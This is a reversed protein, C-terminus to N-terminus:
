RPVAAHPGREEGVIVRTELEDLAGLGLRDAGAVDDDTDAAGADARGVQVRDVSQHVGDADRQREHEAM